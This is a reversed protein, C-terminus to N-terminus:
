MLFGREQCVLLVVLFLSDDASGVLIGVVRAMRGELSDLIKDVAKAIDDLVLDGIAVVVGRWGGRALDVGEEGSEEGEEVREDVGGVYLVVNDRIIHDLEHCTKAALDDVAEQATNLGEQLFSLAIHTALAQEFATCAYSLDSGGSDGLDKDVLVHHGGVAV